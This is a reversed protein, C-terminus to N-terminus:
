YPICHTQFVPETPFLTVRALIGSGSSRVGEEPWQSRLDLWGQPPACAPLCEYVYSLFYIFRGKLFSPLCVILAHALSRLLCKVLSFTTSLCARSFVSGTTFYPSYLSLCYHSAVVLNRHAKPKQSDCENRGHLCFPMAM